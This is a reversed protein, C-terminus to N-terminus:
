LLSPAADLARDFSEPQPALATMEPTVNWGNLALRQAEAIRAQTLLDRADLPKMKLVEEVLSAPLDPCACAAAILAPRQSRVARVLFAEPCRPHRFALLEDASPEVARDLAFGCIEALATAPCNPHRLVAVRQEQAQWLLELAETPTRPDRAIDAVIPCCPKEYLAGRTLEVMAWGPLDERALLKRKLEWRGPMAVIQRVLEEDLGPHALASAELVPDGSQLAHALHHRGVGALKLAMSREAPDPHHMLRAIGDARLNLDNYRERQANKVRPDNESQSSNLGTTFIPESKNLHGRVVRAKISGDGRLWAAAARHHGDGITYRGDTEAYVLPPEGSTKRAHEVVGHQTVRQQSGNLLHLPVDELKAQNVLSSAVPPKRQFPFPSKLWTISKRDGWRDKETGLTELPPRRQRMGPFELQDAKSLRDWYRWGRFSKMPIPEALEHIVHDLLLRPDPKDISGVCEHYARVAGNWLFYVRRVVDRPLRHISWYYTPPKHGAAVMEAVQREEEEVQALRTKPISVLVDRAAEGKFLEEENKLAYEYESYKSDHPGEPKANFAALSKERDPVPMGIKRMISATKEGFTGYIKPDPQYNLGHKRALSTHVRMASTSHSGGKVTLAGLANKAHALVGEYMAVGLGRGQHEPQLESALHGALELSGDDRLYGSVSGAHPKRNDEWPLSSSKAGAHNLQAVVMKSGPKSDHSVSLSYGAQRQEPTLVHSYDHTSWGEPSRGSSRFFDPELVTGRYATSRQKTGVSIDSLAKEMWQGVAAAAEAKSLAQSHGLFGDADHWAVRYGSGDPTAEVLAAADGCYADLLEVKIVALDGMGLAALLANRGIPVHLNEAIEAPLQGGELEVWRLEEFEEDPDHEATPETPQKLDLRFCHVLHQGSQRSGLGQLEAPDVDIGAEEFLERAGGERPDEGPELHGSPTSWLGNDRRRGWLMEGDPSFVANAAVQLPQKPRQSKGLLRITM